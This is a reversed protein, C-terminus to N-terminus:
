TSSLFVSLINKLTEFASKLISCFVNKKDQFINKFLM